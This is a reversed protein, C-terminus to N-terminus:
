GFKLDEVKEPPCYVVPLRDVTTFLRDAALPRRSHVLTCSPPKPPTQSSSGCLLTLPELPALEAAWHCGACPGTHCQHILSCSLPRPPTWSSHGCLSPALPPSSHPPGHPVPPRRPSGVAVTPPRCTFAFHRRCGFTIPSFFCHHKWIGSINM